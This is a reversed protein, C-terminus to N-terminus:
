KKYVYNLFIYKRLHKIKLYYNNNKNKNKQFITYRKWFALNYQIKNLNVFHISNLNINKKNKKYDIFNM